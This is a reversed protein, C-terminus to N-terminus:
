RIYRLNKDIIKKEIKKNLLNLRKLLTEFDPHSILNNEVLYIILEKITKKINKKPTYNKALKYFKKFDVKYSRKDVPADKNKIIKIKPLISKIKNAIDIIKINSNKNGVNIFLCKGGNNKKRYTSWDMARCMDEVDILPRYQSGDSLLIIKKKTVASWTMQNLALDLRLGNSVGCATAFRLSTFISKKLDLRTVIKEIAVKSIAYPTLPNLVDNERKSKRVLHGSNGYISCSGAFTINKIGIKVAEKILKTNAQINIEDTQRAFKNGIPDNSIAALLIIGDYKVKNKLISFNRIDEYIQHDISNKEFTFVESKFNKFYDCDIGTIHIKKKYKKKLYKTLVPGIYGLNGTILLKYM